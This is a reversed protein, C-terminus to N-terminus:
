FNNQKLYTVKQSRKTENYYLNVDRSPAGELQSSKGGERWKRGTQFTSTSQDKERNDTEGEDDWGFARNKRTLTTMTPQVCNGAMENKKDNSRNPDGMSPPYCIAALAASLLIFGVCGAAIYLFLLVGPGKNNLLYTPITNESNRPRETAPLNSRDCQKIDFAGVGATGTGWPCLRCSTQGPNPQYNNLVCYQCLNATENYFTGPPCRVCGKSIKMRGYDCLVNVDSVVVGDADIRYVRNGNDYSFNGTRLLRLIRETTSNELRRLRISDQRANITVTMNVAVGNEPPGAQRRRRAVYGASCSAKVSLCSADRSLPKCPELPVIYNLLKGTIDLPLVSSISQCPVPLFFSILRRFMKPREVDGICLPIPDRWEGMPTCTFKADPYPSFREQCEMRCRQKGTKAIKCTYNGNTPSLVPPCEVTKVIISVNFRCTNKTGKSDVVWCTVATSGRYFLGPKRSCEAMLIAGNGVLRPQKWTIMVPARPVEKMVDPPCALVPGPTGTKDLLTTTEMSNTSIENLSTTVDNSPTSTDDVCTVRDAAVRMGVPCACRVGGPVSVCTHSCPSRGTACMGSVKLEKPHHAHIETPRILDTIVKDIRGTVLDTMAVSQTKWDSYFLAPGVKALGYIHDMKQSIAAVERRNGGEEAISEIKRLTGDAFYLRGEDADVALGNPSELDRGVLTTRNGGSLSAREIKPEKGWDSWFLYSRIPDMTIARPKDVDKVAVKHAFTGLDLMEITGAIGDSWYLTRGDVDIAMGDIGGGFLKVYSIEEGTLRGRSVMGTNVSSWYVFKEEPDYTLAVINPAGDLQIIPYATTDRTDFSLMRIENYDAVLLFNDPEVCRKGDDTLVLGGVDPCQCRYGGRTPVCIHSCDSNDCPNRATLDVYQPGKYFQLGMPHSINKVVSVIEGNRMNGRFIAREDWDSFFVYGDGLTIGFPVKVRFNVTTRNGGLLSSKEISAASDLALRADTWFLARGDTALGNPNYVNASQLTVRNGGDLDARSIRPQSGWDSFYLFGRHVVVARPKDLDTEIVRKRNRRDLDVMEIRQWSSIWTGARVSNMNSFYLRRNAVDVSLGDVTGMFRTMFVESGTGNLFVRKICRNEVDSWYVRQEVPDYDVAVPRIGRDIVARTWVGGRGPTLRVVEGTDGSAYVLFNLEKGSAPGSRAASSHPLVALLVCVYRLMWPLRDRTM